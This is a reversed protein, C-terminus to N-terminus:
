NGSTAEQTKAEHTGEDSDAEDTDTEPVDAEAEALAEALGPVDAPGFGRMGFLEPYDRIMQKADALNSDFTVSEEALFQMVELPQPCSEAYKKVRLRLFEALWNDQRLLKLFAELTDMTGEDDSDDIFTPRDRLSDALMGVIQGAAPTVRDMLGHLFDGLIMEPQQEEKSLSLWSLGEAISHPERDESRALALAKRLVQHEYRSLVEGHGDEGVLV